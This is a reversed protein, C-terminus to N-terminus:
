AELRGAILDIRENLYDALTPAGELSAGARWRVRITDGVVGLPHEPGLERLAANDLPIPVANYHVAQGEPYGGALAAAAIDRREERSISQNGPHLRKAARTAPGAVLLPPDSHRDVRLLLTGLRWVEGLPRMTAARQILFKRRSPVYEALAEPEIGLAKLRSATDNAARLLSDALATM